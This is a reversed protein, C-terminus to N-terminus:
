LLFPPIPNAGTFLAPNFECLLADSTYVWISHDNAFPGESFGNDVMVMLTGFVSLKMDRIYEFIILAAYKPNIAFWESEKGNDFLIRTSNSVEKTYAGMVIHDSFHGKENPKAFFEHWRAEEKWISETYWDPLLFALEIYLCPDGTRLNAYRELVNKSAVGIKARNPDSTTGFVYLWSCNIGDSTENAM